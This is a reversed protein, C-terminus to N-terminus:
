KSINKCFILREKRNTATQAQLIHVRYPFLHLDTNLKTRVITRSLATKQSLHRTSKKPSEELCQRVTEANIATRASRSRSSHGKNANTVCGTEKFKRLLRGFEAPIRYKKPVSPKAKKLVLLFRSPPNRGPIEIVFQRQTQTVLKLEFSGCDESEGECYITKSGNRHSNM